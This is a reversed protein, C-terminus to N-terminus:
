RNILDRVEDLFIPKGSTDPNGGTEEPVDGDDGLGADSFLGASDGGVENKLFPVFKPTTTAIDAKFQEYAPRCNRLLSELGSAGRVSDRLRVFFDYALHVLEAKPNETPPKPLRSLESYTSNLSLRLGQRLKPLRFCPM